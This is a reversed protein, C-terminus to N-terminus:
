QHDQPHFIRANIAGGRRSRSITSRGRWSQSLQRRLSAPFRRVTGPLHIRLILGTIKCTHRYPYEIMMIELSLM